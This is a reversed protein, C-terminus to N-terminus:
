TVDVLWIYPLAFHLGILLILDGEDRGGAVDECRLLTADSLIAASSIRCSQLPTRLTSM